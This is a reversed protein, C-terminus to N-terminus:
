GVGGGGAAGAQAQLGLADQMALEAACTHATVQGAGRSAPALGPEKGDPATAWLGPLTPTLGASPSPAGPTGGGWDLCSSWRARLWSRPTLSLVMPGCGPSCSGLHGCRCPWKLALPCLAAAAGCPTPGISPFVPSRLWPGQPCPSAFFVPAMPFGLPWLLTQGLFCPQSIVSPTDARSVSGCLLFAVRGEGQVWHRM